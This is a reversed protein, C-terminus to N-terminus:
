RNGMIGFKKLAYFLVGIGIALGIILLAIPWSTQLFGTATDTGNLAQIQTDTDTFMPWLTPILAGLAVVIVLVTIVKKLM